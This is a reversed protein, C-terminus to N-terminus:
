LAARENSHYSLRVYDIIFYIVNRETLFTRKVFNFMNKHTLQSLM